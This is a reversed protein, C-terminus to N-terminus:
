LKLPPLKVDDKDLDPGKDADYCYEPSIGYLHGDMRYYLRGDDDRLVCRSKGRDFTKLSTRKM